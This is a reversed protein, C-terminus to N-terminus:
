RGTWDITVVTVQDGLMELYQPTGTRSASVAGCVADAIWLGPDTPGPRHSLKIRGSIHHTRQLRAHLDRDHRDDHGRSELIAHRVRQQDLEHLLRKLTAQRPRHVSDTVLGSRVVILHELGCSRVQNTIAARRAPKTEERWHVKSHGRTLLPRMLDRVDDMADEACLAAALIYTGPDRARDSGSEDVWACLDPM